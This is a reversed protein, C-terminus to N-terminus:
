VSAWSCVFMVLSKINAFLVLENCNESQSHSLSCSFISFASTGFGFFLSLAIEWVIDSMVFIVYMHIFSHVFMNERIVSHYKNYVFIKNNSMRRKTKKPVIPFTLLYMREEIHQRSEDRSPPSLLLLFLSPLLLTNMHAAPAFPLLLCIQLLHNIKMEHSTRPRVCRRTTTSYNGFDYKHPVACLRQVSNHPTPDDCLNAAATPQLPLRAM